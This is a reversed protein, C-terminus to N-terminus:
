LMTPGRRRTWLCCINCFCVKSIFILAYNSGKTKNILLLYINCFCVKSIFILAYNSGKTKSILLLFIVSVSRVSSLYLM